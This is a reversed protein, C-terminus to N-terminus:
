PSRDGVFFRFVARLRRYWERPHIRAAFLWHMVLGFFM